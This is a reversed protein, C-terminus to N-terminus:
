CVRGEQAKGLRPCSESWWPSTQRYKCVICITIGRQFFMQRSHGPNEALWGMSKVYFREPPMKEKGDAPFVWLNHCAKSLCRPFTKLSHPIFRPIVLSCLDSPAKCPAWTHSKHHPLPPQRHQATCLSPPQNENAPSFADRIAKGLLPRLQPWGITQIQGM